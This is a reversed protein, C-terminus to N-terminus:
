NKVEKVIVTGDIGKLAAEARELSTIIAKGQSHQVFDICAEIKPLMSGPAFHGDAIYKQAEVTTIQDLAKENESKYNIFVKNVTTLILLIDANLDQALKATTKDKDIVADIGRYVGPSDCVVPIGGGGCAIVIHGNQYLERITDLEIIELPMPSAVVKRYGRGADDQMVWGKEAMLKQAEEKKYFLGIPKTPHRFAPDDKSVLVQTIVTVCNCPFHKQMLASKLTKQLHFGIYGQSMAGCEAFPMEPTALTNHAQAMALSILGVQPGNGHTIIVQHGDAVLDIIYKSANEVLKLQEEPSQGLANGGLAIVIKAM